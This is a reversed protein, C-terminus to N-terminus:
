SGDPQRPIAPSFFRSRGATFIFKGSVWYNLGVCFVDAVFKAAVAPAELVLFLALMGTALPVNLAWLAAYLAAQRLHKGNRAAEFTFYRHALYASVGACVKAVVNAAVAGWGVLAFLLLFRAYDPAGHFNDSLNRRVPEQISLTTAVGILMTAAMCLYTWKWAAYVYNDATTGLGSALYLAGAGAIVMGARYGAVYASAM